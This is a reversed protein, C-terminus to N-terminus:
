SVEYLELIIEYVFSISIKQLFKKIHVVMM